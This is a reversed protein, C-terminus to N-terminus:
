PTGQNGGGGNVSGHWHRIGALALATFTLAAILSAGIVIRKVSGGKM